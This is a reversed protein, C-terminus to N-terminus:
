GGSMASATAIAASAAAPRSFFKEIADRIKM